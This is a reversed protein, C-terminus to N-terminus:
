RPPLYKLPDQPTGNVRIEFHLMVQNRDNRGMEALPEGAAVRQGEEVLRRRNHAYASLMRDSHKVIVLEGYGILGSGSYVIEGPAAARVPQGESGGIDIGNRAPDGSRFRSLVAGDAPWSWREPDQLPATSSPRPAQQAPPRTEAPPTSAPKPDAPQPTASRQAVVPTPQDRSVSGGPAPAPRTVVQEPASAPPPSLRLEQDPYITYPSRIGNWGALDRWDLGFNFAIAHLTDGRRVRYRGEPTLRYSGADGAVRSSSRDEVPAWSPGCASLLASLCLAFLGPWVGRRRCAELPTM